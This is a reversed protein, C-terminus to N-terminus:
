KERLSSRYKQPSVGTKKKFADCFYSPSSFGIMNGIEGVPISEDELLEKAHEIRLKNRYELPSTGTIDKFVRLFHFKSMGAVAAYEELSYNKYYERNMSQMVPTIRDAYKQIPIAAPCNRRALRSLLEFFKATAIKEYFLEKRELEGIIEEFLDRLYGSHRGHYVHSSFLGFLDFDSPASFHVYYFEATKDFLCIHEQAEHPKFIIFSGEDADTETPTYFHECGKAVYFLLWDERGLPRSITRGQKAFIHGASQVSYEFLGRDTDSYANFIM